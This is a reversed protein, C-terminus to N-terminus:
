AQLERLKISQLARIRLMMAERQLRYGLHVGETRKFINRIANLLEANNREDMVDFQDPDLFDPRNTKDNM